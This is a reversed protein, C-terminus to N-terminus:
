NNINIKVCRFTADFDIFHCFIQPSFLKQIGSENKEELIQCNWINLMKPLNSVIKLRNFFRYRCIIEVEKRKELKM